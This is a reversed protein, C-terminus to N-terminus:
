GYVVQVNVADMMQKTASIAKEHTAGRRLFAKYLAVLVLEEALQPDQAQLRGPMDLRGDRDKAVALEIDKLTVDQRTESM